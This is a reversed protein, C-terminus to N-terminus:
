TAPQLGAATAALTYTGAGRLVLGSFLAAGASAAVTTAGASFNAPGTRVAISVATTSSAVNGFPDVVNVTVDPLAQGASVDSVAAFQLASPAAARVTFPAGTATNAGTSTAT